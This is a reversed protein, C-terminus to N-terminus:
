GRSAGKGSRGSFVTCDRYDELRRILRQPLPVGFARLHGLISLTENIALYMVMLSRIDIHFFAEAKVNLVGDLTVATFVAAAYLFFKALGRRFKRASLCGDVWGRAFGLAFDLCMLLFLGNALRDWGGIWGFFFGLIGAWVGKGLWGMLLDRGVDSLYDLAASWM